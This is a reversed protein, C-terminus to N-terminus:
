AVEKPKWTAGLTRSDEEDYRADVAILLDVEPRDREVDGRLLYLRLDRLKTRM